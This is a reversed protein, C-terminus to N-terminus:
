RPTCGVQASLGMSQSRAPTKTSSSRKQDPRVATQEASVEQGVEKAATARITKDFDGNSM